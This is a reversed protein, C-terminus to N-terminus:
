NPTGNPTGAKAPETIRYKIGACTIPYDYVSGAEATNEDRATHDNM